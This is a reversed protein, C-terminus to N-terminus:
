EEESTEVDDLLEGLRDQEEEESDVLGRLAPIKDARDLFDRIEDPNDLARRLLTFFMVATTPDCQELIATIQEDTPAAAKATRYQREIKKICRHISKPDTGGDISSKALARAITVSGVSNAYMAYIERDRETRFAHTALLTKRFTVAEESERRRRARDIDRMKGSGKDSLLINGETDYRELEGLGEKDLRAAWKKCICPNANCICSRDRRFSKAGM